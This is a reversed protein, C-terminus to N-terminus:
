PAVNSVQPTWESVRELATALENVTLQSEIQSLQSEAEKDGKRTAIALWKYAEIPDPAIGVGDNLMLALNFQSDTIDGQAAQEFWQAAKAVDQDGGSGKSYLVGLNHMANANGARAAQEYWQRAEVYDQPMGLGGELMTGLRYQSPAFGQAAAQRILDEAKVYNRVAGEGLFYRGGLIYQARADGNAADTELKVMNAEAATVAAEPDANQENATWILQEDPLSIRATASDEIAKNTTGIPDVIAVPSPELNSSPDTGDIINDARDEARDERSTADSALDAQDDPLVQSILGNLRDRVTEIMEFLPAIAKPRSLGAQEATEEFIVLGAAASMILFAAGIIAWLLKRAPRYFLGTQEGTADTKLDRKPASINKQPAPAPKGRLVTELRQRALNTEPEAAAASKEPVPVPEVRLNPAEHDDKVPTTDPVSEKPASRTEEQDIGDSPGLRDVRQHLQTIRDNLEKLTAKRTREADDIQGILRYLRGDIGDLRDSLAASADRDDVIQNSPQSKSRSLDFLRERIDDIKHEMDRKIRSLQTRLDGVLKEAGANQNITSVPVKNAERAALRRESEANELRVVIHAIAQEITKMGNVAHKESAEVQSAIHSLAEEMHKSDSASNASQIREELHTIRDNLESQSTESLNAEGSPLESQLTRVEEVAHLREAVGAITHDLNNLVFTSREESKELKQAINGLAEQLLALEKVGPSPPPQYPPANYKPTEVPAQWPAEADINGDTQDQSDPVANPDGAEVIITNLWQGLTLGAEQAAAKAIARAEPDVGKVSWPVRPKM